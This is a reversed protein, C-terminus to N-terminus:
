SRPAYPREIGHVKLASEYRDPLEDIGALLLAAAEHAEDVAGQACAEVIEVVGLPLVRCCCRRSPDRLRRTRVSPVPGSRRALGPFLTPM